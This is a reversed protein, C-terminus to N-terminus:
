PRKIWTGRVEEQKRKAEDMVARWWDEKKYWEEKSCYRMDEQDLSGELLKDEMINENYPAAGNALDTSAFRGQSAEKNCDSSGSSLLERIETDGKSEGWEEYSRQSPHNKKRLRRKVPRTEKKREPENQRRRKAPLPYM